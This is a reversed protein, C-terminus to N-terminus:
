IVGTIFSGLVLLTLAVTTIQALVTYINIEKELRKRRDSHKLLSMVLIRNTSM